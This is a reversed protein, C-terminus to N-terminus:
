IKLCINLLDNFVDYVNLIFIGKNFENFSNGPVGDELSYADFMVLDGIIKEMQVKIYNCVIKELSLIVVKKKM